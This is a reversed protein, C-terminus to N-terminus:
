LEHKSLKFCMNRFSCCVVDRAYSFSLVVIVIVISLLKSIYIISSCNTRQGVTFVKLICHMLHQFNMFYREHDQNASPGGWCLCQTTPTATTPTATTTYYYSHIIAALLEKGVCIRPKWPSSLTMPHTSYFYVVDCKFYLGGDYTQLELKADHSCCIEMRDELACM